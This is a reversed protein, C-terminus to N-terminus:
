SAKAQTIQQKVSSAKATSAAVVRKTMKAATSFQQKRAARAIKKTKIPSILAPEELNTKFSKEGIFLNQSLIFKIGMAAIILYVIMLSIAPIEITTGPLVGIFLFMLIADAVAIGVNYLVYGLVWIALIGILYRQM